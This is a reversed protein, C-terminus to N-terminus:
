VACSANFCRCFLFWFCRMIANTPLGTSADSLSSSVRPLFRFFFLTESSKTLKPSISSFEAFSSLNNPATLLLSVECLTSTGTPGFNSLSTKSEDTIMLASPSPPPPAPPPSPKSNPMLGLSSGSSARASRMEISSSRARWCAASPPAGAGAAPPSAAGAASPEAGPAAVVAAAPPAAGAPCAGAAANGTADSAATMSAIPMSSM